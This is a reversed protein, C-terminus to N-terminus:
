REGLGRELCALVTRAMVELGIGLSEEDIDFRPHHHGWVVGKEANRSGVMFMAGPRQQLFYSFDEGGMSPPPDVLNEPGVVDAAVDRVITVVGPANVTAPVGYTYEYSASAGMAECVGTAIEGIRRVILDQVDRDLTRVTGDLLATDPIVNAANGAHLSGVTIV